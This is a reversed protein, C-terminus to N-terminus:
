ETTITQSTINTYTGSTPVTTCTIPQASNQGILGISVSSPNQPMNMGTVLHQIYNPLSPLHGSQQSEIDVPQPHQNFLRNLTEAVLPTDSPDQSSTSMEQSSCTSAGHDHAELGLKNRLIPFKIGANSKMTTAMSIDQTQNEENDSFMNSYSQSMLKKDDSVMAKENGDEAARPLVNIETKIGSRRNAEHIEKLKTKVTARDM